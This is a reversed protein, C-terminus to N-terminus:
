RVVKAWGEVMFGSARSDAPTAVGFICRDLLTGRLFFAAKQFLPSRGTAFSITACKAFSGPYRMSEHVKVSFRVKQYTQAYNPCKGSRKPGGRRGLVRRELIAPSAVGFIRRDLPTSRLFFAAKQLLSSRGQVFSITVCKAFIVRTKCARM